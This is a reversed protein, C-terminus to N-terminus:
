IMGLRSCAALLQRLGLQMVPDDEIPDDEVILISLPSPQEKDLESDLESSTEDFDNMQNNANLQM